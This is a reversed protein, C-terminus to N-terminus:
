PLFNIDNTRVKRHVDTPLGHSVDRLKKVNWCLFSFWWGQSECLNVENSDTVILIPVCIKMIVHITHAEDQAFAPFWHEFELCLVSLM